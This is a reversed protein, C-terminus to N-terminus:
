SKDKANLAGARSEVFRETQKELWGIAVTGAHGSIGVLAITPLEPLNSWKCLWFTILGAFASTCLEGILNHLKYGPLEGRRVKNYFSVIGGLIAVLFVWSYEEVSYGGPLKTAQAFTVLPLLALILAIMGAIVKLGYVKILRASRAGSFTHDTM